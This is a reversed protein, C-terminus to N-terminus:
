NELHQRWHKNRGKLKEKSKSVLNQLQRVAVVLSQTYSAPEKFSPVETKMNVTIVVKGQQEADDSDGEKAEISEVCHAITQGGRKCVGNSVSYSIDEGEVDTDTDFLVANDSGNEKAVTFQLSGLEYKPKFKEIGEDDFGDSEVLCAAIDREMSRLVMQAEQRLTGIATAKAAQRQTDRIFSIAFGLIAAFIAGAIILEVITFAKRKKNM